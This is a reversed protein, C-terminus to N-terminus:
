TKLLPTRSAQLRHYERVTLWIIVMDFLTLILLGPTVRIVLRYIQYVVFVGLFAIMWPYAWLKDRLVAWVLIIKVIGHSLLYLAGFLSVHNHTLSASATLLTNAIFDHPDESLEHQTLFQAVTGIARPSVVFLLIGGILELVADLGKLWVLLRFVKEETWQERLRNIRTIRSPPMAKLKTPEDAIDQQKM